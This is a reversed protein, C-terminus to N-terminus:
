SQKIEFGEKLTVIAKKWDSKKGPQNWRIRKSKGKVVMSHVDDVKVNYVKEVAQRIEIKNADRRVWFAYKRYVADAASKESVLPAKIVSFINRVPSM